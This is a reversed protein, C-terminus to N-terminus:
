GLHMAATGFGSPAAHYLPGQVLHVGEGAKIDFLTGLMTTMMGAAEPTAGEMRARRVGKPRGTTGSTYLML